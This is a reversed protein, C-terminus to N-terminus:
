GKFIEKILEYWVARLFMGSVIMVVSLIFSFFAYKLGIMSIFLYICLTIVGLLILMAIAIPIFKM